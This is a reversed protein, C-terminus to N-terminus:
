SCLDPSSLCRALVRDRVLGKEVRSTDPSTRKPRISSDWRRNLARNEFPDLMVPADPIPKRLPDQRDTPRRRYQRLVAAKMRPSLNLELADNVTFLSRHVTFLSRHITLPRTESHSSRIVACAIVAFVALCGVAVSTPLAPTGPAYLEAFTPDASKRANAIGMLNHSVQESPPFALNVLLASAFARYVKVREDPSWLASTEVLFSCIGQEAFRRHALGSDASEDYRATRMAIGDRSLRGTVCGALLRQLRYQSARGFGAIEVCNDMGPSVDLWEHEDVIVQPRFRSVLKTIALTEPQDASDWDRNLDAGRGNERRFRSYGDPNAVPIITIVVRKLASRYLPNPSRALDEALDLMAKVSSQEDGHQGCLFLVRTRGRAITEPEDPSTLIVALVPRGEASKGIPIVKARPSHKLSRVRNLIPAYRDPPPGPRRLGGSASSTPQATSAISTMLVVATIVLIRRVHHTM